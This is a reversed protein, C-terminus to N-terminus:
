YTLPGPPSGSNCGMMKMWEYGAPFVSVKPHMMEGGGSTWAYYYGNLFVNPGIYDVISLGPLGGMVVFMDDTASKRTGLDFMSQLLGPFMINQTYYFRLICKRMGNGYNVNPADTEIVEWPLRLPNFVFPSIPSIVAEQAKTTSINNVIAIRCAMFSTTFAKLEVFIFRTMDIIGFFTVTFFLLTVLQTELMGQGRSNKWNKGSKNLLFRLFKVLM